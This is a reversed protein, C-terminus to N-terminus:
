FDNEEQYPNNGWERDSPAGNAYYGYDALLMEINEKTEKGFPHDAPYKVNLRIINEKVNIGEIHNPLENKFVIKLIGMLMEMPIAYTRAIVKQDTKM